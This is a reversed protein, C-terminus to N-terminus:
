VHLLIFILEIWIRVLMFSTFRAKKGPTCLWRRLSYLLLYYDVGNAVHTSKARHSEKDAAGYYYRTWWITCIANVILGHLWFGVSKVDMVTAQSSSKLFISVEKDAAGYYYRTWWITCIENVILGHLWFGVSKVDMVTAQSSSKLFIYVELM